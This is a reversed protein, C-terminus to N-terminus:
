YNDNISWEGENYDKSIEVDIYNNTHSFVDNNFFSYVPTNLYSALRMADRACSQSCIIKNITNKKLYKELINLSLPPNDKILQKSM